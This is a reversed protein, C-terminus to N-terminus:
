KSRDTEHPMPVNMQVASLAVNAALCIVPANLRTRMADRVAAVPSYDNTKSQPKSPTRFPLVYAVFKRRQPRGNDDDDEEEFLSRRKLGVSETM